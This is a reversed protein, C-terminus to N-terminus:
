RLAHPLIHAERSLEEVKSPAPPLPCDHDFHLSNASAKLCAGLELNWALDVGTKPLAVVTITSTAMRSSTSTGELDKGYSTLTTELTGLAAGRSVRVTYSGRWRQKPGLESISWTLRNNSVAGGGANTIALITSEFREDLVLDHLVTDGINELSLAFRVMSGPSVERQVPSQTIRVLPQLHVVKKRKEESPNVKKGSRIQEQERPPLIGKGGRLVIFGIVVIALGLFLGLLASRLFM